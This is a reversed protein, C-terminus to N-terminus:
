LNDYETARQNDRMARDISPNKPKSAKALELKDFQKRLTDASLIKDCWFSDSPLWEIIARIEENSRKDLRMMHEISKAWAKINPPKFNPKIQLIKSHLFNAHELAVANPVYINSAKDKSPPAIPIESSLERELSSREKNNDPKVTLPEETLPQPTETNIIKYEYVTYECGKFQGSEKIHTRECYKHEILENLLSLIADRNSGRKGPTGFVGQLHKVSVNWNDPRGMLYTWLGKAAWSLNPDEIPIKNVIIYPNERNHCTRIISM